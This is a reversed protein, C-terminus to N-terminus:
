GGPHARPRKPPDEEHDKEGSPQWAPDNFLHHIARDRWVLVGKGRKRIAGKLRGKGIWLYITSKSRGTIEALQEPTVIPGFRDWPPREFARHIEDLSLIERNKGRRSM